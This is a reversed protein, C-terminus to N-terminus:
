TKICSRMSEAFESVNKIHEVKISRTAYSSYVGEGSPINSNMIVEPATPKINVTVTHGGSIVTAINALPVTTRAREIPLHPTIYVFTSETIYAQTHEVDSIITNKQARYLCYMCILLCPLCISIPLMIVLLPCLGRRLKRIEDQAIQRDMEAVCTVTENLRPDTMGVQLRSESSQKAQTM